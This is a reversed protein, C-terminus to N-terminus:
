NFNEIKIISVNLDTNLDEKIGNILNNILSDRCKKTMVILNNKDITVLSVKINNNSFVKNLKRIVEENNNSNIRIYFESEIKEKSIISFDNDLEKGHNLNEYRLDNRIISLIDSVVASGTPLSGAGKGYSIVEGVANGKISVANFVDKVTAFLHTKSILCPEVSAEVKNNKISSKALLKVCYGLKKACNIDEKKINRIGERLIENPNLSIGFCLSSIISLKYLSDYGDIDSSPDFEAFGEDRALNLADEFAMNEEEMKTLIYNTTGNLIGIVSDIKNSRLSENIERIIPIGGGVSAEYYLFVKEEQSTKLLLNRHKAICLKNATVIHKKRKMAELMYELAPFEGGMVEVVVDISEDNLIECFNDTLLGEKLKIERIKNLDKVLVKKIEIEYGYRKSIEEKNTNLVKWVGKGVNGFGLLAINVKRM